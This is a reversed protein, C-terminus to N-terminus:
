FTVRLRLGLAQQGPVYTPAFSLSPSPRTEGHLRVHREVRSIDYVASALSLGAGTALILGALHYEDSGKGCYWGCVATAPLVSLLTLGARLRAGRMGRGGYVSPYGIAPGVVLGSAIVLAPGADSEAGQAVWWTAGAAVPILTSWLSLRFAKRESPATQAALPAAVCVATLLAIVPRM